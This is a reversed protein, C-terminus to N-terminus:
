GRSVGFSYIGSSNVFLSRICDTAKTIEITEDKKGSNFFSQKVAGVVEEIPAIADGRKFVGHEM